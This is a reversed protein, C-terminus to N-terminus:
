KPMMKFRTNCNFWPLIHENQQLQYWGRYKCSYLGGGGRWRTRNSHCSYVCSVAATFSWRNSCHSYECRTRHSRLMICNLFWVVRRVSKFCSRSKLLKLPVFAMTATPRVIIQPAYRGSRPAVFAMATMAATFNRGQNHSSWLWYTCRLIAGPLFM